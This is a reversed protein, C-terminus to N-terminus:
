KKQHENSTIQAREAPPTKEISQYHRFIRTGGVIRAIKISTLSRNCGKLALAFWRASGSGFNCNEVEIESLHYNLEFFPHLSRFIEGGSLDLDKFVIKQISRNSNVGGCFSKFADINANNGLYSLHLENLCANKGIYYGLWGVDHATGEPRYENEKRKVDWVDGISLRLKTFETDNGRLKRLIARNNEDSVIDEIKMTDAATSPPTPSGLDQTEEDDFDFPASKGAKREADTLDFGNGEDVCRSGDEDVCWM